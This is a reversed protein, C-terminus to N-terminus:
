YIFEVIVEGTKISYMRAVHRGKSLTFNSPFFSMRYPTIRTFNVGRFTFSSLYSGDALHTQYYATLDDPIDIAVIRQSGGTLLDANSYITQLSDAFRSTSISPGISGIGNRMSYLTFILLTVGIASILLFEASTQGKLM